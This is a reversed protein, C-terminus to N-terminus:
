EDLKMGAAKIIALQAPTFKGEKLADKSLKPVYTDKAGNDCFTAAYELAEPASRKRMGNQCAIAWGKNAVEFVRGISGFRKEILDAESPDTPLEVTASISGDWKDSKTGFTHKRMTGVGNNDHTFTVPNPGHPRVMNDFLVGVM